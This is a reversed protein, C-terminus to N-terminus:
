DQEITIYADQVLRVKVNSYAISAEAENDFTGMDTYVDLDGINTSIQLKYSNSPTVIRELKITM